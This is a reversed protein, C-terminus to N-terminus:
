GIINTKFMLGMLDALWSQGYRPNNARAVLNGAIGSVTKNLQELSNSLIPGMMMNAMGEALFQMPHAFAIKIMEPDKLFELGQVQNSINGMFNKWLGGLNIAGNDTVIKNYNSKYKKENEQEKKYLNRQMNLMEELMANQKTLLDTTSQFFKTSNDIHVKMVNMNFEVINKLGVTVNEFGTTMIGISKVNQLYAIKSASRVNEGVYKAGSIVSNSIAQSGGMVTRSIIKAQTLDPTEKVPADLSSTDTDDGTKLGYDTDFDDEFSAMMDDAMADLEEDDTYWKGTKLDKITNDMIIKGAQFWDNKSLADNLRGSNGKMDRLDDLWERVTDQNTEIYDQFVPAKKSAAEASAYVISKGVNKIYSQVDKLLAM